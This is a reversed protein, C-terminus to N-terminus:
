AFQSIYQRAAAVADDLKDVETGVGQASDEKGGAQLSMTHTFDFHPSSSQRVKGAILDTVKSAWDRADAGKEKLAPTVYNVHAVKDSESDVSFVYLGKQAKRAASAIGQLLQDRTLM